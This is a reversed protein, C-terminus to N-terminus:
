ALIRESIFSKKSFSKKEDLKFGLGLRKILKNKLAIAPNLRLPTILISQWM